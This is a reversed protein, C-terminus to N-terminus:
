VIIIRQFYRKGWLISPTEILFKKTISVYDKIDRGQGRLRRSDLTSSCFIRYRKLRESGSM